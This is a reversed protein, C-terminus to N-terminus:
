AAYLKKAPKSFRNNLKQTVPKEIIYYTLVGVLTAAVVGALCFLLYNAVSQYAAMRRWVQGVISLTIAHSLYISYSANGVVVFWSWQPLKGSAELVLAGIVILMSAPGYIIARPLDPFREPVFILFLFGAALLFLGLGASAPIKNKVYMAGIAVGLLFELIISNSYFVLIPDTAASLGSVVSGYAVLIGMVAALAVIRFREPLNLLLGFLFYFFMEANLTWGPFLVPNIQNDSGPMLSPIFLYSSVVHWFDYRTSQLLHPAVLMVAVVISTLLWYLPVIRVIRRQYFYLTTMQRGATTIWMVFGSIVFFIDVGGSLWGPWYSAYGMREMQPLLHFVIIMLAAIGRLYQISQLM